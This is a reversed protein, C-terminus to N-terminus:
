ATPQKRSYSVQLRSSKLGGFTRLASGSRKCRNFQHGHKRRVCIQKSPCHRFVENKSVSPQPFFHLPWPTHTQSGVGARVWASPGTPPPLEEPTSVEAKGKELDAVVVLVAMAETAPGRWEAVRWALPAADVTPGHGGFTLTQSVQLSQWTKGFSTPM